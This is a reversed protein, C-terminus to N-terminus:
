PLTCPIKTATPTSLQHACIFLKLYFWPKNTHLFGSNKNEWFSKKKEFFLKRNVLFYDRVLSGMGQFVYGVTQGFWFLGKWFCEWIRAGYFQRRAGTWFVGLQIACPQLNEYFNRSLCMTQLKAFLGWARFKSGCEPYGSPRLGRTYKKTVKEYLRFLLM